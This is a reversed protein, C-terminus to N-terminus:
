HQGHGGANATHLAKSAAHAATHAAKAADRALRREVKAADLAAHRDRNIVLHKLANVLGPAQPNKVCNALVQEIAHDLGQTPEAIVTATPDSPPVVVVGAADNCEQERVPDVVPVDAFLAATTDTDGSTAGQTADEVDPEESDTSCEAGETTDGEGETTDGEGETTDGETETTDGETETTDGETGTTDTPACTAPDTSGDATAALSVGAGIVLLAVLLALLRLHRSIRM